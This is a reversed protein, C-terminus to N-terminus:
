LNIPTLLLKGTNNDVSIDIIKSNTRETTEYLEEAKKLMLTANRLTVYIECYDPSNEIYMNYSYFNIALEVARCIEESTFNAVGTNPCFGVAGRNPDFFIYKGNEAKYVLMSHAINEDDDSGGENCAYCSFNFELYCEIEVNDLACKVKEQNIHVWIETSSLDNCEQEYITKDYFQDGERREISQIHLIPLFQLLIQTMLLETTQEKRGDIYDIFDQEPVVDASRLFGAFDGMNKLELLTIFYNLPHCLGEEPDFGLIEEFRDKLHVLKSISDSMFDNLNFQIAKESKFLKKYQKSPSLIPAKYVYRGNERHIGEVDRIIGQKVNKSIASKNEHDRINTTQNLFKVVEQGSFIRDIEENAIKFFVKIQSNDESTYVKLINSETISNIYKKVYRPM